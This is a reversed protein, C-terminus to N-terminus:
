IWGKVFVGYYYFTPTTFLLSDLRDLLGGHGPILQSSDKVGASRKMASEVLDGLAGASALGLGLIISDTISLSPLFWLRAALAAITALFLGGFLGEVTKNPSIVPALKHRGLTRGAFYGGADGSWTVLLLFFILFSGGDLSRILPLHGLTLGVYLVGLLLMGSDSLCQRLERKSVLRSTLVILLFLLWLAQTPILEPWQINVLLLMTLGAGLLPELVAHEHGFHLRYFEWLCLIATAVVVAFFAQPPLYRILGYLLPIFVLAVYIRRADFRKNSM